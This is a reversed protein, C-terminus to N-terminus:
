KLVLEEPENPLVKAYNSFDLKGGRVFDSFTQIDFKRKSLGKKGSDISVLGEILGKTRSPGIEDRWWEDTVAFIIKKSTLLSYPEKVIRINVHKADPNNKASKFLFVIDQYSFHSFREGYSELIDKVEEAVEKAEYYKDTKEKKAKM